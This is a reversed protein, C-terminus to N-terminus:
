VGTVLAYLLDAERQQVIIIEMRSKNRLAESTAVSGECHKCRDTLTVYRGKGQRSQLINLRGETNRPTDNKSKTSLLQTGEEVQGQGRRLWMCRQPSWICRKGRCAEDTGLTIWISQIEKWPFAPVKYAMGRSDDKRRQAWTQQIKGWYAVPAYPEEGEWCLCIIDDGETRKNRIKQTGGSYRKVECAARGHRRKEDCADM